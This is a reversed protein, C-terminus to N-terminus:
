RQAVEQEEVAYPQLAARIDDPMPRKLKTSPDIFVHRLEGAVVPRDGVQADILTGLATKGLRAV